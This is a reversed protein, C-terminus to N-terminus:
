RLLKNKIRRFLRIAGSSGPLWTDKTLRLVANWIAPDRVNQQLLYKLLWRHFFAQAPKGRDMREAVHCMSDPHQRYKDLCSDDVFVPVQHYVRTLFAIDEYLQLTRPNFSEVFGGIREFADRRILYSCTCPAGYPGLPYCSKFLAPPFYLKGGPALPPIENAHTTERNSDWDYWYETLGYVMGAEPNAGILRIQKELKHPLWVDDSDLFALYEGKSNRVGLNRSSALGCNRHGPHMVYQIREPSQAAYERAIEKSRDTSGDDVLLLEWQTYTQAIVSEIAEAIFRESNLFPITVSVLGKVERM